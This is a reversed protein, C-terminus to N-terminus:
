YWAYYYYVYDEQYDDIMSVVAQKLQEYKDEDMEGFFFGTTPLVKRAKLQKNLVLLDDITVLVNCCNFKPDTGGKSRYLEHMWGQLASNKRFYHVEHVKYKESDVKFDITTKVADKHVKRFYADLGL